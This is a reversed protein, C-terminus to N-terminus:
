RNRATITGGHLEVIGRCISLGLGVGHAAGTAPQYFREFIREEDGPPVGPGRDAISVVLENGDRHASIEIPAQSPAYKVTNELLNTLVESILGADFSTMPLDTPLHVEVPYAQLVAHMRDLVPSIVEGLSHWEKHIAISGADIRAMELLNSVQRNLRQSEDYISQALEHRTSGDLKDSMEALTSSAGVIGALPTRLDHSVASLLSNRLRETEMELRAREATQAFQVRELALATLSALTEVLGLQEPAWLRTPEHPRVQLVGITGESAQLPLYLADAGPLTDTGLGAREGHELVWQAVARDQADFRAQGDDLQDPLRGSSDPLLLRIAAHGAAALHRAATRLVEDRTRQGALERSMGYLAATRQEKHLMADAQDHVRATLTSILVGTFIMVGFTMLYQMDSVAFTYYPKVFYFDFAAASLISACVSPGRGFQLAVLAVGLLYVMVLNLPEVVRFLGWSICTCLAVSAVAWMYGTYPGHTRPLPRRKIPQEESQGTMVYVDIDGSRRALEYVFPARFFEHWRPHTPKGVVIKTINRRRSYKVIEEVPDFGPLRVTEGGLRDALVLHATLRERDAPTLRSEPPQEVHAAIWPAHLSRAMRATSRILQASTPSPGVCVLLREATPWVGTIAFEERYDQMQRSVREATRRLALERLAILNGKKFFNDVARTAQPGLYVKGEHLREILDDAPLDVLEIDDANDFVSDPVTERVRIGTIRGVVDNLSELHQVNLTTYVDIGAKLLAEVDQWRKTHVLLGGSPLVTHALEDVIVVAPHRALSADLDFETMKAGRYDVEKRPLIELGLTLAQTEPRLHPEVYGIVVDDGAMARERAEHLMSYTKGVGPAAGFFIKLKGRTQQAEQHQVRKLLEDPNPREDQM